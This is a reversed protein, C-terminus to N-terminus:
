QDAFSKQGPHSPISLTKVTGTFNKPYDVWGNQDTLTCVTEHMQGKNSTHPIDFKPIDAM